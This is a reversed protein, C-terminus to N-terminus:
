RTTVFLKGPRRRSLKVANLRLQDTVTPLSTLRKFSVDLDVRGHRATYPQASRPRRARLRDAAQKAEALRAPMMKQRIPEYRARVSAPALEASGLQVAPGACVWRSSSPKRWEEGAGALVTLAFDIGATVGGGTIVAGDCSAGSRADCRVVDDGGVGVPLRGAQGLLGAAWLILSGTCVSTVYKAGSALRTEALFAEDLAM